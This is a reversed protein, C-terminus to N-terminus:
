ALKIQGFLSVEDTLEILDGASIDALDLSNSLVENCIFDGYLKVADSISDHNQLTITIKDTVNFDKSKRLNQIRNVLEKAMGEAKLDDTLTVDLAVTLAGNSAVLWGPIDETSIEFDEMTLEFVTGDIDLQYTGSKELAAIDDQNFANIAQSAAKM